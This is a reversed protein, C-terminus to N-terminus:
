RLCERATRERKLEQILAAACWGHNDTFDTTLIKM